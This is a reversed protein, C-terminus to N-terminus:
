EEYGSGVVIYMQQLEKHHLFAVITSPNQIHICAHTLGQCCPKDTPQSPGIMCCTLNTQIGHSLHLLGFM